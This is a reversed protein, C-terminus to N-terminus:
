GIPAFEKDGEQFGFVHKKDTETGNIAMPVLVRENGGNIRMNFAVGSLCLHKIPEKFLDCARQKEMADIMEKNANKVRALPIKPGVLRARIM